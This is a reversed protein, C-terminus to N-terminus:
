LSVLLLSELQDREQSLRAVREVLSGGSIGARDLIVRIATLEDIGSQEQTPESGLAAIIEGLAVHRGIHWGKRAKNWRAGLDSKLAGLIERGPKNPFEVWTTDNEYVVTYGETKVTEAPTEATQEVPVVAVEEPTEIAEVSEAIPFRADTEHATQMIIDALPKTMRERNMQDYDAWIDADGCYSEKVEPTPLGWRTAVRAAIPKVFEVSLSRVCSISTNCFHVLEGKYVTDHSTRMDEMYDYGNGCFIGVAGYVAKETPGDTWKVLVDSGMSYRDIRVSFKIGPFTNKLEARVLKAVDAADIYRASM